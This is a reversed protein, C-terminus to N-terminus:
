QKIIRKVIRGRQNQYFALYIGPQLSSIDIRTTFNRINSIILPIGSTNTIQLLGSTEQTSVTISTSAPNPSVILEDSDLIAKGYQPTNEALCQTQTKTEPSYKSAGHTYNARVQYYYVTNSKLGNVTFSKQRTTHYSWNGNQERIRLDFSSPVHSISWSINISNCNTATAVLNFPISYKLGALLASYANLRGTGMKGLYDPIHEDINDTTALLTEKVQEPTIQGYNQSVILAAVGVVHPCAMSTGQSMAYQNNPITSYVGNVTPLEIYSRLDGGPASINVWDGYTSYWAKEDKSDTAAVTIVNPLAGPFTARENDNNGASFVVLGGQMAEFQGGANAIFYNIGDLISQDGNKHGTHGWSNQSIVAGNDAAYVFAEAFPSVDYATRICCSMLRVGDNRGSGGAIGAVGIGNNTEAAITGAVHTAHARVYIDGTDDQFNYGYIDDVYGNNDDDINNNPIEDHNVWMNGALDEHSWDIGGDNVAVIVNSNGTELTWANTLSIDAGATGENQGTNKFHWQTGFLPDNTRSIASKNHVLSEPSVIDFFQEEPNMKKIPNAHTIHKLTKFHNAVKSANHKSTYELQYWLHLGFERHKAEHKGGHRFVRKIKKVSYVQHLKDIDSIGTELFAGSTALQNKKLKLSLADISNQLNPSFKIRVIGAFNGETDVEKEQSFSVQIVLTLILLLNFKRM